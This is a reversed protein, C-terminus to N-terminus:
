DFLIFVLYYEVPQSYNRLKEEKKGTNIRLKM